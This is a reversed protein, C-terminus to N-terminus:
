PEVGATGSVVQAVRGRQVVLRTNEATKVTVRDDQVHVVTGIIGGATVVEDGKRLQEIMKRHREQEKRQPRILLFYFIAFIAGMQLMFILTANGGERPVALVALIAPSVAQETASLRSSDKSGYLYCSGPRSFPSRLGGPRGRLAGALRREVRRLDGAGGAGPGGPCPVRPLPPQAPHSAPPGAVGGGRRPAPPVGPRVPPLHLLRVGPGSAGPGAQVPGAEPQVTGGPPKLGGIAVGVWDGVALVDRAQRLRLDDFVNGQLVPFLTQVPGPTERQLHDFHSRCRQLWALTRQNARAVVERSAGGPPCEDFAMVVDAGLARQIEMVGEPTFLHRSGDIHSQFVVGDDRIQNIRALSFVQFGGSDTLLPGDWRMFAHLGGLERVTEHGPRLFLHYTNALVMSAGLERVEDPTLTKVTGQTGVPMFAPTPVPGHPTHLVGARASGEVRTTRFSFGGGGGEGPLGSGIGTPAPGEDASM